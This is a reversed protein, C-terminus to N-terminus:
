ALMNSSKSDKVFDLQHIERYLKYFFPPTDESYFTMHLLALITHSARFRKIMVVARTGYSVSSLSLVGRAQFSVLFHVDDFGRSLFANLLEPYGVRTLWDKMECGSSITVDESVAPM